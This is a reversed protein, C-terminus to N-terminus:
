EADQKLSRRFRLEAVNPLRQRCHQLVLIYVSGAVADFAYIIRYSAGVILQRCNRLQPYRSHLSVGMEPFAALLNVRRIIEFAMTSPLAELKEFAPDVWEIDASM